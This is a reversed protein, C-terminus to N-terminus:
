WHGALSCTETGYTKVDNEFMSLQSTGLTYTETGYTKVDNEFLYQMSTRNQTTETGYTKVDNEFRLNLFSGGDNACFLTSLCM